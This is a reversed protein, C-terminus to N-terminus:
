DYNLVLGVTIVKYDLDKQVPFSSQLNVKYDFEIEGDYYESNFLLDYLVKAKDEDTNPSNIYTRDLASHDGPLEFFSIHELGLQDYIFVTRM